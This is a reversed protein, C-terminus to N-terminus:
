SGIWRWWWSVPQFPYLAFCDTRM